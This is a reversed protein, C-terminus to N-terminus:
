PPTHPALAVTPLGCGQGAPAKGDSLWYELVPRDTGITGHQTLHLEQVVRLAQRADAERRGFDKLAIPGAGLQWDGNAWTLRASRPDFATLTEPRMAAAAPVAPPQGTASQAPLSQPPAPPPAQAAAAAAFYSTRLVFYSLLCF